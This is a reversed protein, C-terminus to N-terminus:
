RNRHGAFHMWFDNCTSPEIRRVFYPRNTIVDELEALLEEPKLLTFRDLSLMGVLESVTSRRSSGSILHSVFVNTDILVRFLSATM